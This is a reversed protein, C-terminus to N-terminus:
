KDKKRVHIFDTGWRANSLQQQLHGWLSYQGGLVYEVQSHGSLDVKLSFAALSGLDGGWRGNLDACEIAFSSSYRPRTAFPPQGGFAGVSGYTRVNACVAGRYSRKAVSPLSLTSSDILVGFPGGLRM